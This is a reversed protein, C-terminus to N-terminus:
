SRCGGFVDTLDVLVHLQVGINRLFCEAHVPFCFGFCRGFGVVAAGSWGHHVMPTTCDRVCVVSVNGLPECTCKPHFLFFRQPVCVLSSLIKFQVTEVLNFGLKVRGSFLYFCAFWGLSPGPYCMSLSRLSGQLLIRGFDM